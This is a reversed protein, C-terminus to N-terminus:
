RLGNRVTISRTSGAGFFTARTVGATGGIIFFTTTIYGVIAGVNVGLMDANWPRHKLMWGNWGAGAIWVSGVQVSNLLLARLWWGRVKPWSRGSHRSEVVMMMLAVALVIGPIIMNNLLRSIDM